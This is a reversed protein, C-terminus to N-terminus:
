NGHRAKAFVLAARYEAPWTAPDALDINEFGPLHMLATPQKARGDSTLYRAFDAPIPQPAAMACSGVWTRLQAVTPPTVEASKRGPFKEPWRKGCEVVFEPAVGEERMASALKGVNIRTESDMLGVHFGCAEAIAEFLAQQPTQKRKAKFKQKPHTATGSPVVGKTKTVSDEKHAAGHAPAEPVEHRHPRPVDLLTYLSPLSLARRDEIAIVRIGALGQLVDRVKRESMSLGDAITAVKPYCDGDDGAYRCLATYVAVGYAGLEAGVMEIVHSEVWCWGGRRRDRVQMENSM